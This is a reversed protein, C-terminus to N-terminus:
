CRRNRSAEFLSVYEGHKGIYRWHWSEEAVGSYAAYEATFTQEWGYKHANNKLWRYGATKAFGDNIPTFDVAFGTHHESYGPHSSTYYIKKASQGQNYKNNVIQRQRAVGRFISGPTLTVGDRKAADILEQLAPKVDRHIKYKTDNKSGYGSWVLEDAHPEDYKFHKIGVALAEPACMVGHTLPLTNNPPTNQAYHMQQHHAPGIEQTAIAPEQVVPNPSVNTVYERGAIVQGNPSSIMYAGSSNPMADQTHKNYNPHDPDDPYITRVGAVALVTGVTILGTALILDRTRKKMFTGLDSM